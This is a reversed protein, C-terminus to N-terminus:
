RDEVDFAMFTVEWPHKEELRATLSSLPSLKM